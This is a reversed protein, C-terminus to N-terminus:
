CLDTRKDWLSFKKLLSHNLLKEEVELTKGQSQPPVNWGPQPQPQSYSPNAGQPNYGYPQQQQQYAM